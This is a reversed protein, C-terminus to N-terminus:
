RGPEDAVKVLQKGFNTGSLVRILARPTNEFGEVIDERYRLKGERVWPGLRRLGEDYRHAHDFILFGEMRCRTAIFQGHFRPGIDPGPQSSIAIRGCQVIRAGLNVLGMAADAILGATNDFYIDIGGPCAAALAAPLDGATRHNVGADYGLEDRCWALKAESGAVAVTRCGAMKALQGVVQGVAGSAASVVVTDGPKPRGIDFLAFYATLGPMGLIGLAHRIPGHAPDVKRTGAPGLVAYEQWGFAMSEVIDGPKFAPHRSRVVEGVGGGGMVAGIEIGKAYGKGAAIRGRMYPDVSLWITRVLIEGEGPGPMATEVLKWNGEEPMAAPRSALVFRRNRM